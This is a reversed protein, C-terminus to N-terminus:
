ETTLPRFPAGVAAASQGQTRRPLPLDVSPSIGPSTPAFPEARRKGSRRMTTRGPMRVMARQCPEEVFRHLGAGLVIAVAVLVPALLALEPSVVFRRAPDQWAIGLVVELVAMHVLYLCYSIRGGYVLVPRSLWTAVGGGGVALAAVLMPFALIAVGHFDVGPNGAARWSAWVSVFVIVAPALLVAVRSLPVLREAVRPERLALALLIGSVFGCAIRLLWNQQWDLPGTRYALLVLPLLAVHALALNVGPWLRGLPRLLVALVPFALYALWEASTSWGPVLYSATLLNDEGWLQTMSLQRLLTPVDAAPHSALVDANWGAARLGWIWAGMVLTVAAWAPWVRALRNWWFRLVAAPSIGSGIDDVYRRAIVFGSLIFFLEVGAWGADLLPELLPVEGLLPEFLVRFHFLVVWLAAVARLGTLARIEGARPRANPHVPIERSASRM